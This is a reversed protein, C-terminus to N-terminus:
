RRRSGSTVASPSGISSSENRTSKLAQRSGTVNTRGGARKPRRQACSTQVASGSSSGFPVAEGAAGDLDLGDGRRPAHRGSDRRTPPSAKGRWGADSPPPQTLVRLCVAVVNPDFEAHRGGRLRRFAEEVPLAERYPRDTTMAHFADCAFIIRRRSPIENGAAPGPLRGRRLARPLRPRDPAGGALQDIPALIREGLEPHREILSREEATLPGPKMLISAPIGIKGIDHFLAGLELRKLRAEDLGLERGVEIAMDCIWRTHSSTYSDKAELANALAEVTTSLFTRELRRLEPTRSRSAHRARSGRSCSSNAGDVDSETEVALAALGQDIPIFAVAHPTALERTSPAPRVLAAERASVVFPESRGLLPRRRVAALAARCRERVRTARPAGPM